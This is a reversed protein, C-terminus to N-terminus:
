KNAFDKLKEMDEPTFSGNIQILAINASEIALIVVSKMLEGEMKSLILSREKEDGESVLKQYSDDKLENIKQLLNKRDEESCEETAIITLSDMKKLIESNKEKKMQGSAMQLMAKPLEIVSAGKVSRFDNVLSEVSQGFGLQCVLALALTLMMKKM